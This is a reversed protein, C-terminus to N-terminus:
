FPLDADGMEFDDDDPPPDEVGSHEFRDAILQYGKVHTGDKADYENDRIKGYLTVHSGKRLNEAMDTADKRFATFYYRTTKNPFREDPEDIANRLYQVGSKGTKLEVDYVITGTTEFKM